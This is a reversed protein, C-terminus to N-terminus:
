TAASETGAGPVAQAGGVQTIVGVTMEKIQDVLQGKGGALIEKAAKDAQAAPTLVPLGDDPPAPQVSWGGTVIAGDKAITATPAQGPQVNIQILKELAAMARTIRVVAEGAVETDILFGGTPLPNGTLIKTIAGLDNHTSRFMATVIATRQEPTLPPKTPQESM